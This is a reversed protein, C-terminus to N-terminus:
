RKRLELLLHCTIKFKESITVSRRDCFHLICANSQDIIIGFTRWFQGCSQKKFITISPQMFQLFIAASKWFFFQTSNEVGCRIETFTPSMFRRSSQFMCSKSKFDNGVKPNKAIKVAVTHKGLISLKKGTIKAVEDGM